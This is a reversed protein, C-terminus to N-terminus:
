TQTLLPSLKLVDFHKGQLVLVVATVNTNQPAFFQLWVKVAKAKVAHM